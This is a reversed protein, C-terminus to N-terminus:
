PKRPRSAADLSVAARPLHLVGSRRPKYQKYLDAGIRYAASPNPACGHVHLENLMMKLEVLMQLSESQMDLVNRQVTNWQDAQSLLMCHFLEIAEDLLSMAFRDKSDHEVLARDKLATFVEFMRVVDAVAM